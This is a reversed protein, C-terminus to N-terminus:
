PDSVFVSLAFPTVARETLPEGAALRIARGYGGGRRATDVAVNYAGASDRGIAPTPLSLCIWGVPQGGDEAVLLLTDPTAIGNPLMDVLQRESETRATAASARGARQLDEAYGEILAPLRADLEAETMPRLIIRGHSM